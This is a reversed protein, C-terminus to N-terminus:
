LVSAQRSNRASDREVRLDETGPQHSAAPPTGRSPEGAARWLMCANYRCWTSLIATVLTARPADQIQNLCAQNCGSRTPWRSCRKLRADNSRSFARLAADWPALGVAAPQRNEPCIVVRTGRANLFAHGARWVSFALAIGALAASILYTVM